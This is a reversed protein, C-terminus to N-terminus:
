GALKVFEDVDAVARNVADTWFDESTLDVDLHKRAVDEVSMSGTDALLAAYKDAFGPGEQRARDYVGGAFLFGFTYPWNYFPQQSLYFHLKSAWFLPHYGSEDLMGGFARKQASVMLEKLRKTPVVGERREAYFEREFLYRTHLDCFMVYAAQLKQELLMLKLDRDDAQTLAADVILTESFISATEALNMPYWSAFPPKDKLVWGHYAHGLEHALTLMNEFSGGYTMFIRSQKRPGFSTCFGGGAKGARDEGEIWRKDLAMQMFEAMDGSFTRAQAVVFKGAEDFSMLKDAAGVPAFEDYWTFRDIGLLKKKAEIFPRLRPTLERVVKWMADVSAQQTRNEMLSEHVPNDWGRRKYLTLRFGALSNLAMGALDERRSWGESMAEFARRRVERNTDSMKTAIQGMSLKRTTGDVEFDVRLDGAMKDYLRNWADYGNVGLDLALSELALPMKDAAHKRVEDVFFRIESVQPHDLLTKWQEDSVERARAELETRLKKWESARVDCESEIAAAASDSVDQATLCGAFSSALDIEDAISQIRLIVEVWKDVTSETIDGPLAKMLETAKGLDTKIQERQAKYEPSAAGGAFITELDWTPAPPIRTPPM